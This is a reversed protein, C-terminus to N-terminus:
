VSGYARTGLSSQVSGRSTALHRSLTLEVDALVLLADYGTISRFAMQDLRAGFLQAWRPLYNWQTTPVSARGYTSGEVGYVQGALCSLWQALPCHFWTGPQGVGEAEHDCLWTVFTDMDLSQM